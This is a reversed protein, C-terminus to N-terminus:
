AMSYSLKEDWWPPLGVKMMGFRLNEFDAVYAWQRSDGKMSKFAQVARATFPKIERREFMLHGESPRKWVVRSAEMVDLMDLKRSHHAILLILQERQRSLSVLNALSLNEASASRRAHAVLQAEDIIVVSKHPISNLSKPLAVWEPLLPKITRPAYVIAGNVAGQTLTHWRDMVWYSTATKGQGRQGMIVVVGPYPFAQKFDYRSDPTVAAVRTPTLTNTRGSM